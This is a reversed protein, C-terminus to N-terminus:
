SPQQSIDLRTIAAVIRTGPATDFGAPHRGSVITIDHVGADLADRCARLKAIMGASASGDEIMTQIGERDLVPITAGAADFVGATAGAIILRDVRCAAALAAALTDANVNLVQGRADVGLCAIAPVYRSALLDLVLTPARDPIPQGVLGLDVVRGDVSQHAPARASLGLAADVGTLGVAQIDAAVLGSVLRTNVTGALVAIVADLTAADTIRLGDVSQKPVGRRATEADIEKGGGHVIVLPGAQALAAISSVLSASMGRPGDDTGDSPELLEGGLKLLTIGTIGRSDVRRRQAASVPDEIV